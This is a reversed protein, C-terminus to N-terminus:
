QQYNRHYVNINCQPIYYTVCYNILTWLFSCISLNYADTILLIPPPPSDLSLLRIYLPLTHLRKITNKEKGPQHILHTTRLCFETLALRIDTGQAHGKLSSCTVQARPYNLLRGVSKSRM